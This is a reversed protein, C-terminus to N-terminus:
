PILNFARLAKEINPRKFDWADMAMEAASGWFVEIFEQHGHASLDFKADPSVKALFFHQEQGKYEEQRPTTPPETWDYKYTEPAEAIIEFDGEKLGVEEFLERAAAEKATEGEDIGGQVTQIAGVPPESRRCLLVNGLGDTIIVAANQRYRDQREPM